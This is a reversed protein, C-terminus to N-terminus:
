KCKSRDLKASLLRFMEYYEKCDWQAFSYCLLRHFSTLPLINKNTALFSSSFGLCSRNLVTELVTCTVQITVKLIFPQIINNILLLKNYNFHMPTQNSLCPPRYTPHHMPQNLGVWCTCFPM